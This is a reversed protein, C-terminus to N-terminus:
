PLDISEIENSLISIDVSKIFLKWEGPDPNDGGLFRITLMEENGDLLTNFTYDDLSGTSVEFLDSYHGGVGIVMRPWVGGAMRGSAQVTLELYGSPFDYPYYLADGGWLLQRDEEIVSASRHYSALILDQAADLNIQIPIRLADIGAELSRRASDRDFEQMYYDFLALMDKGKQVLEQKSSVEEWYAVLVRLRKQLTVLENDPDFVLVLTDDAQENVRAETVMQAGSQPDTIVVSYDGAFGRLKLVGEADTIGVGDSTWSHIFDRMAWYSKRPYWNEDVLGGQFVFEGPSSQFGFWTLSHNLPKSFFITYATTLYQAQLDDSWPYGWYGPVGLPAEAPVSFESGAITKGYPALMDQFRDICSSMQALSMRDMVYPSPNRIYANYYFQLGLVDFDIGRQLMEEVIQYNNLWDIGGCPYSLNIEVSATPDHTRISEISTSIAQYYQDRSWRHPNHNGFNPELIAEWQDVSPAFREVLKSVHETLRELYLDFPVDKMYEIEHGFDFIGNTKVNLGRSSIEDVATWFTAYNVKYLGDEPQILWWPFGILMGNIGIDKAMDLDYPNAVTNWIHSGVTGFLFDHAIQQYEVRYELLPAGNPDQLYITIDGKRYQEIDQLAHDYAEQDAASM